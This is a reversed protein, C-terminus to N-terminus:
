NKKRPAPGNIAGPALMASIPISAGRVPAREASIPIEGSTTEDLYRSLAAKQARAGFGSIVRSGYPGIFPVGKGIEAITGATGGLPKDEMKELLSAIAAYNGSVQAHTRPPMFKLDSAVQAGERWDQADPGMIAQFKRDGLNEILKAAGDGSIPADSQWAGRPQMAERLNRGMDARMENVTQTQGTKALLDTLNQVNRATANKGSGYVYQDMFKDPAVGNAAADLAPVQGHLQMRAAHANRAARFADAAQAGITDPSDALMGEADDVAGRLDGQTRKATLDGAPPKNRNMVKRLVDADRVTFTQTQNPTLEGNPGLLGRKKLFNTVGAGLQGLGEEENIEGLKQAIPQMPVATDNGVMSRAVTYANDVNEKLGNDIDELKGIVQEAAGHSNSAVPNFAAIRRDASARFSRENATKFDRISKGAVNAGENNFESQALGPDQTIQAPTLQADWKAARAVRAIADPDVPADVKLAKATYDRIASLARGPVSAPDIGKTVLAQAAINEPARPDASVIPAAASKGTLLEKENALGTKAAGIAAPVGETVATATLPGILGGGFAAGMTGLPGAGSEKAAQGAAGSGVGSAIAAAPAEGLAGLVAKGVGTAIKSGIGAAGTIGAGTAMGTAAANAIREATTSPTPLGLSDAIHSTFEEPRVAHGGTVKDLLMDIPDAVIGVTAGAANLVDRATLGFQRSVGNWLGSSASGTPSAAAGAPAAPAPASATKNGMDAWDAAYNTAPAQAPAAQAPAPTPAVQPSQNAPMPYIPSANNKAAQIASLLEPTSAPNRTPDGLQAQLISLRAANPAPAPSGRGLTAWDAAYDM